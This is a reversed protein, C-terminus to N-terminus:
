WSLQYQTRLAWQGDDGPADTQLGLGSSDGAGSHALDATIPDLAFVVDITFKSRHKAHYWNVGGTVISTSSNTGGGTVVPSDPDTRIWEYRGFPELKDPIVMYGAEALFGFDDTDIATENWRHKGYGAIMVGLGNGELSLDATWLLFDDNTAMPRGRAGLEYHVAAGLM